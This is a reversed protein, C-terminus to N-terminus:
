QSSQYPKHKQLEPVAALQREKSTIVLSQTWATPWEGAKRINNCITTPIDIM